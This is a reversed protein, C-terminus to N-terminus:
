QGRAGASTNTDGAGANFSPPTPASGVRAAARRKLTDQLRREGEAKGLKQYDSSTTVNNNGCGISAALAGLISVTIMWRFRRMMVSVGEELM